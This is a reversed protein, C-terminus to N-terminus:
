LIEDELLFKPDQEFRVTLCIRPIGEKFMHVKHPKNVRIVTAKKITIRAVEVATAPDCLYLNLGNEQAVRQTVPSEYFVTASSDCNLLPINIRSDPVPYDIHIPSDSDEVTYYVAVMTPTLGLNTFSVLAEPCHKFYSQLDLKFFSNQKKDTLFPQTLVYEISKEVIENYFDIDIEKFYLM